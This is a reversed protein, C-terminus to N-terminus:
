EPAEAQNRIRQLAQLIDQNRPSDAVHRNRHAFRVVGMQDIAFTGPMQMLDGGQLGRQRTEPRLNAKLFPLATSPGFVQILSGRALGYARYAARDPDLLFTFPIMKVKRFEQAAERNGHGILVVNAGVELFRGEEERLTVVQAQCFPCGVYRLFVLVAPSEQWFFWLPAERGSPDLLLAEPARDGVDPGTAGAAKAPRV